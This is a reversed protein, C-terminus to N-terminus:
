EPETPLAPLEGSEKDESVKEWMGSYLCSGSTSHSIPDARYEWQGLDERHSNLLRTCFRFSSEHKATEVFTQMFEKADDGKIFRIWNRRYLDEPDVVGLLRCLQRSVLVAHGDGNLEMSPELRAWFEHRRFADQKKAAAELRNVVDKMSKGGNLMVENKVDGVDQQLRMISGQPVEGRLENVIRPVRAMGVFWCFAAKAGKRVKPILFTLSFAIGTMIALIGNTEQLAGFIHKM